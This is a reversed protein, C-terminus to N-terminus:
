NGPGGPNCRTDFMAQASVVPRWTELDWSSKGPKAVRAFMWHCDFQAKMTPTDAGPALHVVLKWAATAGTDSTATRAVQTPFVQLSRGGNGPM